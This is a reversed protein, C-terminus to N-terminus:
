PQIERAIPGVAIAASAALSPLTARIADIEVSLKRLRDDREREAEAILDAELAKALRAAAAKDEADVDNSYHSRVGVYLRSVRRSVDNPLDRANQIERMILQLRQTANFLATLEDPAKM